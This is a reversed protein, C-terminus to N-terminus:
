RLPSTGLSCLLLLTMISAAFALRAIAHAADSRSLRSIWGGVAWGRSRVTRRGISRLGTGGGMAPRTIVRDPGLSGLRPNRRPRQRTAMHNVM